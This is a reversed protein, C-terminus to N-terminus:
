GQYGARATGVLGGIASIVGSVRICQGPLVRLNEGIATSRDTGIYLDFLVVDHATYHFIVCFTGSINYRSSQSAPINLHPLNSSTAIFRSLCSQLNRASLEQSCIM